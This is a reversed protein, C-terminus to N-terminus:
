ATNASKLRRVAEKFANGRDQYNKFLGFSACAPSLLVVDGSNAKDNAQSILNEMNEVDNVIEGKFGAKKLETKIESGSEGIVFVTKVNNELVKKAFENFRVGKFSGGVILIKPEKFTTLAAIASEPTTAASDNIYKVGKIEAVFELRHEAGEYKCIGDWMKDIDDGAAIGAQLAALANEANHEGPVKLKQADVSHARVASTEGRSFWMVQGPASKALEVSTEDNRNFVVTDTPKQHIWLNAKARVYEERDKHWNLHDTKINTVVAIPPSYPLDILQFSSLELIVWDFTDADDIRDLMPTGINGLLLVKKGSAELGLKLMQATTGKGKTGTIGIINAESEEFFLITNSTIKTGRIEAEMIEPLYRYVGPSRVIYDYSKLGKALYNEGCVFEVGRDNWEGSVVEGEPRKDFVTIRKSNQGLFYRASDQGEVGFGLIAINYKSYHM